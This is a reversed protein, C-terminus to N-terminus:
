RPLSEVVGDGRDGCGVLVNQHSRRGWGWGRPTERLLEQHERGGCTATRSNQSEQGQRVKLYVYENGVLGLSLTIREKRSRDTEWKWGRGPTNGGKPSEPDWCPVWYGGRGPFVTHEAGRCAGCLRRPGLFSCAQCRSLAARSQPAPPCCLGSLWSPLWVVCPSLSGGLCSNPCAM